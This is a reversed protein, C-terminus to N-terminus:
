VLVIAKDNVWLRGQDLVVVFIAPRSLFTRGQYDRSLTKTNKKLPQYLNEYGLIIVAKLLMKELKAGQRGINLRSEVLLALSGLDKM